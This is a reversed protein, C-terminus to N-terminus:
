GNRPLGDALPSHVGPGQEQTSQGASRVAAILNRRWAPIELYVFLDVLEKRAEREHDILLISSDNHEVCGQAYKSFISIVFDHVSQTLQEKIEQSELRGIFEDACRALVVYLEWGLTKKSELNQISETTEM